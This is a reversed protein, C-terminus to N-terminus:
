PIQLSKKKENRITRIRLNETAKAIRFRLSKAIDIMQDKSGAEGTRVIEIAEQIVIM